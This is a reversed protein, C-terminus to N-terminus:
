KDITSLITALVYFLEGVKAFTLAQKTTLMAYKMKKARVTEKAPARFLVPFNLINLKM